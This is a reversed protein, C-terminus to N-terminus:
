KDVSKKDLLLWGLLNDIDEISRAVFGIGGALRVRRLFDDQLASTKGVPTKIEIAVFKGNPPFCALIDSVGAQSYVGGYHKIIIAGYKTELHKRIKLVLFKEKM